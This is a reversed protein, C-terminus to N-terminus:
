SAKHAGEEGLWGDRLAQLLIKRLAQGPRCDWRAAVRALADYDPMTLRVGVNAVLPLIREPTETVQRM